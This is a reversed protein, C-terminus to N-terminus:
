ELEAPEFPKPIFDDAGLKFGLIADRKRVTASCIIIPVDARAKLNACLVLGDADPLMLDLIVLDPRLRQVMEEGEAGNEAHEVRYGHGELIDRLMLAIEPDDEILLITAGQQGSMDDRGREMLGRGRAAAATPALRARAGASRWDAGA